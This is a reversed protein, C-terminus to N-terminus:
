ARPPGRVPPRDLPRERDDPRLGPAEFRPQDFSLAALVRAQGGLGLLPLCLPCHLAAGAAAPQGDDPTPHTVPDSIGASCVFGLGQVRLMPSLSAGGLSLCFAFIVWVLGKRALVPNIKAFSM